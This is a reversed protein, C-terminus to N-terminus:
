SVPRLIMGCSLPACFTGNFITVPIVNLKIALVVHFPMLDYPDAPPGTYPSSKLATFSVDCLGEGTRRESKAEQAAAITPHAQCSIRIKGASKQVDSV